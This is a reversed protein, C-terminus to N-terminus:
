VARRSAPEQAKQWIRRFKADSEPGFNFWAAKNNSADVLFLTDLKGLKQILRNRIESISLESTLLWTQPVLMCTLGLGQIEDELGSLSNSKMDAMVIFRSATQPEAEGRGFRPQVTEATQAPKEFYTRPAQAPMDAPKERVEINKFFPAIEPDSLAPTHLEVGDKAIMSHPALRGEAVFGQMREATYPGYVRGGASITWTHSM